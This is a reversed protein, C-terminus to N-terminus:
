LADPGEHWPTLIRPGEATVAITFEFHAALSGDASYIAWGDDGMRVDHRGATTMPEVALVMGEELLPGKGPAGYNPVQPEEHMERGVGHGVLSRVVSMGGAEVTRQVAHSIDGIRNGPRCQEAGAMLSARTVEILKAAVPTVSGVPFTVAGDAVWGRYTVGVDISIIDGDQLEYPGPIGHVVMDNPSACISAPFGRYGKFSPVAGKSRIFEEAAADLEATTVGPRIMGALMKLTEVHIAGAAAMKDIDARSKKIIV